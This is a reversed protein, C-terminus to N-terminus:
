DSKECRVFADKRWKGPFFIVSLSSKGVIIYMTHVITVGRGSELPALPNAMSSVATCLVYMTTGGVDIKKGVASICPQSPRQPEYSM